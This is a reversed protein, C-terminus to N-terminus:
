FEEFAAQLLAIKHVLAGFSKQVTLLDSSLVHLEAVAEEMINDTVLKTIGKDKTTYLKNKKSSTKKKM